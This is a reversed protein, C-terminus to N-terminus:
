RVSNKNIESEMVMNLNQDNAQKVVPPRLERMNAITKGITMEVIGDPVEMDEGMEPIYLVMIKNVNCNGKNIIQLFTERPVFFSKNVFPVSQLQSLQNISIRELEADSCSQPEVVSVYQIGSSQTDYPFSMAKSTLIAKGDKVDIVQEALFSPDFEVISENKEGKLEAYRSLWEQQYFDALVAGCRFVFDSLKFFDKNTPYAAYYQDQAYQAVFNM